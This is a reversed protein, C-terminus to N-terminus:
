IMYGEREDSPTGSDTPRKEDVLVLSSARNIGRFSLSAVGQVVGVFARSLFDSGSAVGLYIRLGAVASVCLFFFGVASLVVVPSASLVYSALCSAVSIVGESEQALVLNNAFVFIFFSLLIRSNM